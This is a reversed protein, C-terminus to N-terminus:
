VATAALRSEVFSGIEALADRAEPLRDAYVPWIHCMDEGEVYTADVGAAAAAEACRKADDRLCELSGAFLLLPPLGSWDGFLPSVRSDRPDWGEPVVMTRMGELMAPGPVLPDVAANTTMSEGTFTWDAVPSISVGAAPQAGGEDRIAQMASLSLGGGASDGSIVIRAPDIGSDVVWHYAAVADELAAPAPDEPALRYDLLLVRAGTAASLEGGFSRYGAASGLVYGGSHTHIVAREASAGPATAWIAPVGGADVTEFTTGEPVAIQGMHEEFVRRMDDMTAEPDATWDALLRQNMAFVDDAAASAMTMEEEHTTGL